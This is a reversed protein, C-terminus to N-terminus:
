RWPAVAETARAQERHLSMRRRDLGDGLFVVAWAIVERDDM